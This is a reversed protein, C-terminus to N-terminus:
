VKRISPRYYPALREKIRKRMRCIQLRKVGRIRAIEIPQYGQALLRAVEQQPPTLLSLLHDAEIEGAVQRELFLTPDAPEADLACLAEWSVNDVKIKRTGGSAIPQVPM